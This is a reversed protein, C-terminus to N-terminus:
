FAKRIVTIRYIPRYVTLTNSADSYLSIVSPSTRYYLGSVLGGFDLLCLNWEPWAGPAQKRVKAPRLKRM